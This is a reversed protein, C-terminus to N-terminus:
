MTEPASVGLLALGNAIAQRAALVLVLRANRLAADEVIVRYDPNENGAAYAGHFDTALERLYNVLTHPARTAAALEIVEPLRSITVMLRKEHPAELRALAARGAAPDPALGRDALQRLVSAVRAHAYQIYYVPNEASRSKALELDFDLHQDHSRMVFYFRCADNGVEERLQRLTVFNGERKGMAVKEGGRYLSVLQLLTVELCDAPEGMAALGGRVRAVYGHHDAGLVDILRDFGRLRKDLHYAIDSAFYTRVGNEREVVRDEDDGFQSARFWLAGDKRYTHGHAELRRLAEDIAGSTALSRESYWRDFTVGMEALDGRIDAVMGELAHNVVGQFGPEGLLERARAIVADVFVEKDGGEPADKPLGHAVAAAPQALTRGFREELAAAIPRLYEGKYGNAPFPVAEGLRELYRLWVSAALIDVQRGADNIYFERSVAHGAAALLNGLAAGFAAHRGHGVHLPGTPNASVFELLIKEGGAVARHGYAAGEELVRGLEAHYAAPALHFNIFGPGAIEVRTVSPDAPLANAIAQALERPNKRAAKAHRLAVNTAYDGHALERTREVEIAGHRAAAPLLDEPLAALAAGVLKEITAKM